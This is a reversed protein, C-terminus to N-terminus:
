MKHQTMEKQGTIGKSVNKTDETNTPSLALYQQDQLYM